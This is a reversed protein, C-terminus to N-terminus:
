NKLIDRLVANPFRFTFAVYSEIRPLPTGHADQGGVKCVGILLRIM